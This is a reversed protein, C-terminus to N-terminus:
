FEAFFSIYFDIPKIEKQSIGSYSYPDIVELTVKSTDVGAEIGLGVPENRKFEIGIAGVFGGSSEEVYDGSAINYSYAAKLYPSVSAKPFLAYGLSLNVPINTYSSSSDGGTLIYCLPGVGAGIRIGNDYELYPNLSLGVPWYFTKEVQYGEAELNNEYIELIDKFGSIYTLGMQFKLKPNNAYVSTSAFLLTMLFFILYIHKM